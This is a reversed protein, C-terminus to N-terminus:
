GLKVYVSKTELFADLGEEGHERGWGSEKVGGFPMTVDLLSYCNVWLNGTNIRAAVRHATSVNTTFVGGGLGYNTANARPILDDIDDFLCASLVPGFIEEKVIRLDPNTYAFITPSVFFGKEPLVQDGHVLEAGENRGIEIYESVRRKQTESVVPGLRTDGDLPNGLKLSSIFKSIGDLVKDFSKRQVFLRSGAFCVQGSNAMIAMAAGPIAIDMDADDFVVCPSKGGLELTVRKLNGASARVLNKGVATSGTFSIKNIDPHDAIAQGAEAGFGPVVNLVGDPLGAELALEAVRLASLPTVESPKHVVSCGAALAPSSKILMTSLPGNWPTILGVVGLPERRTYALVEGPVSLSQSVAKGYIRQISSASWRVTNACGAVSGRAMFVPMGNNMSELTAIEELNAEILDAWRRMIAARQPAPMLRWAGAEFSRRAARVAADIDAASGKAVTAIVEETAPNVVTFTEGSEAPVTKGDIVLLKTGKLFQTVKETASM